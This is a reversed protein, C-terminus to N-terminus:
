LSDMCSKGCARDRSVLEFHALGAVDYLNLTDGADGPGTIYAHAWNAALKLYHMPDNHPLGRLEHGHRLAFYLETAGLEM